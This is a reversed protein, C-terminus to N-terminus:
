FIICHALPISVAALFKYLVGFTYYKNLNIILHKFHEWKQIYVMCKHFETLIKDSMDYQFYSSASNTQMTLKPLDCYKNVFCLINPINSTLSFIYSKDDAFFIITAM